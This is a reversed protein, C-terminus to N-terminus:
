AKFKDEEIPTYYKHFCEIHLQVEKIGENDKDLFVTVYIESMDVPEGCKHCDVYRPKVEFEPFKRPDDTLPM